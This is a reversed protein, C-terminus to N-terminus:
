QNILRCSESYVVGFYSDWTSEIFGSQFIKGLWNAQSPKYNKSTEIEIVNLM